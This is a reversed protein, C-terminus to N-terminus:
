QQDSSKRVGVESLGVCNRCVPHMKEGYRESAFGSRLLSFAEGRWIEKFDHTAANGLSFKNLEKCCPQVDGDWGVVPATWLWFCSKRSSVLNRNKAERALKAGPSEQDMDFEFNDFGLSSYKKRAVEVEHQNHPFVIMKLTLIPRKKNLRLKIKALKDVNDLVLEFNGGKRYKLYTESSLGDLSVLIRDLGSKVLSEAFADRLPVSLNSAFTTCINRDHLYTIIEPLSRNLLPEGSYSLSVGILNMAIPDIIKAVRELTLHMDNRLSKKYAKDGHACGACSLHCLPTSEIKMFVPTCVPRTKALRLEIQSLALNCIKRFTIYPLAPLAHRRIYDGIWLREYVTAKTFSNLDVQPWNALRATNFAPM